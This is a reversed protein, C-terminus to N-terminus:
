FSFSNAKTTDPQPKFIPLGHCKPSISHARMVSDSITGPSSFMLSRKVLQIGFQVHMVYSTLSCKSPKCHSVTFCRILTVKRLHMPMIMVLVKLTKATTHKGQLAAPVSYLSKPASRCCTNRNGKTAQCAYFSSCLSADRQKMQCGVRRGAGQKIGTWCPMIDAQVRESESCQGCVSSPTATRHLLHTSTAQLRDSVTRSRGLLRECLNNKIRAATM